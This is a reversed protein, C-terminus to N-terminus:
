AASRNGGGPVRLIGSDGLQPERPERAQAGYWLPLVSTAGPHPSRIIGAARGAIPAFVGATNLYAHVIDPRNRRLHATLRVLERWFVPRWVSSMRFTRIIAADAPEGVVLPSTDGLALVEVEHGKKRLGCALRMLHVQAGGVTLDDIVFTIRLPSPTM